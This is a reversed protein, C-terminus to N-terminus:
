KKIKSNKLMLLTQYVVNDTEYHFNVSNYWNLFEEHDSSKSLKYTTPYLCIGSKLNYTTTNGQYDTITLEPQNDNHFAQLKDYNEGYLEKTNYNFVMGDKFDDISKIINSYDKPVGAVTLEFEKGDYSTCYKKAGMFKCVKYVGEDDFVGLPKKIGEITKPALKEIDINYFKCAEELEKTIQKNYEEFIHEHEQYNILKISDTDYYCVDSDCKIINSFLAQRAYATCFVGWSFPMFYSYDHFSAQEKLKENIKDVSLPVNYWEGNKDIKYEMSINRTVAMGYLANFKQKSNLYEVEKNKVNKLTTKDAYQKLIFEIFCKPLRGAKSVWMEQIEEKQIIYCERILKLDIETITLECEKCAKVRGNDLIAGKIHKGLDDICWSESIYTNYYRSKINKLKIRFLKCYNSDNIYYSYMSKFVKRFREMPYMKAILMTPYASTEDKSGCYYIPIDAYIYNTHTIGGRFANNEIRWGEYNLPSCKKALQIIKNKIFIKKVERRVIGTQTLPIDHINKYQKLFYKILDYVVICDYECYDLENKSLETLSNRLGKNYDLYGTLKAHPLNFDDALLELKMCTLALTCRWEIISDGLGCLSNFKIVNRNARAIIQPDDPFKLVSRLYEFEFSLNHVFFIKNYPDFDNIITLFALFEEWTRGYYINNNIGLQWIYMVGYKESKQYIEKDISPNVCMLENKYRIINCTEIDFTYIINSYERKNKGRGVTYIDFDFSKFHTYHEM